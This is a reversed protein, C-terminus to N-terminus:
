AETHSIGQMVTLNQDASGFCLINLTLNRKIKLKLFQILAQFSVIKKM